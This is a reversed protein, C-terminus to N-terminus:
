VGGQWSCSKAPFWHQFSGRLSVTLLSSCRMGAGLSLLAQHSLFYRLLWHTSFRDVAAESSVSMHRFTCSQPISIANWHFSHLRLLPWASNEMGDVYFLQTVPSPHIFNFKLFSIRVWKGSLLPTVCLCEKAQLTLIPTFVLLCSGGGMSQVDM